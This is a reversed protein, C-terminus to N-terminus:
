VAVAEATTANLVALDRWECHRAIMGADTTLHKSGIEGSSTYRMIILREDDLLWWDYETPISIRVAISRPLYSIREGAEINWRGTWIMWRQYSTPPQDTVRVRSVRKGESTMHAIRDLWPRWWEIQPPPVPDGALFRAFNEREYGLAYAPQAEWRFATRRAAFLQRYFEDQDIPTM